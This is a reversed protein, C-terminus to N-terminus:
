RPSSVTPREASSPPARKSTRKGGPGYIARTGTRRADGPAVVPPYAPLAPRQGAVEHDETAAGPQRGAAPM